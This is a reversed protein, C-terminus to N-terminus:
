PRPVLLDNFNNVLMDKEKEAIPNCKEVHDQSKSQGILSYASTAYIIELPFGKFAPTLNVMNERQGLALLLM